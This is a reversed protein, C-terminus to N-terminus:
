LWATHCLGHDGRRRYPSSHSFSEAPTTRRPPSSYSHNFHHLNWWGLDLTLLLKTSQTATRVKALFDGRKQGSVLWDGLLEEIDFRMRYTREKKGEYTGPGWHFSTSISLLAQVPQGAYLSIRSSLKAKPTLYDILEVRAAAVIQGFPKNNAFTRICRQFDFDCEDAPCRRPFRDREM